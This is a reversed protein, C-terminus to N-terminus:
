SCKEFLGTNGCPTDCRRAAPPQAPSSRWNVDFWEIRWQDPTERDEFVKAPESIPAEM